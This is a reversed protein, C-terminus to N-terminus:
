EATRRGTIARTLFGGGRVDRDDTLAIVCAKVQRREATVFIGVPVAAICPFPVVDDPVPDVADWDIMEVLRYAQSSFADKHRLLVPTTSPQLSSLEALRPFRADKAFGFAEVFLTIAVGFFVALMLAPLPPVLRRGRPREAADLRDRVDRVMRAADHVLSQIRRLRPDLAAIVAEDRVSAPTTPESEPADDLSSEIIHQLYDAPTAYGGRGAMAEIMLSHTASLRVEHRVDAAASPPQREDQPDQVDM